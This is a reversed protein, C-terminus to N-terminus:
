PLQTLSRLTLQPTLSHFSSRTLSHLPICCPFSYSARSPPLLYPTPPPSLVTTWLSVIIVHCTAAHAPPHPTLSVTATNFDTSEVRLHLSGCEAGQTLKYTRAAAPATLLAPILPLLLLLLLSTMTSITHTAPDRGFDEVFSDKDRDLEKQSM